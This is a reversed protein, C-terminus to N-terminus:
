QMFAMDASQFSKFVLSRRGHRLTSEILKILEVRKARCPEETRPLEALSRSHWFLPSVSLHLFSVGSLFSPLFTLYESLYRTYYLYNAILNSAMALLFLTSLFPLFTMAIAITTLRSVHLFPRNAPRAATPVGSFPPAWPASFSPPPATPDSPRLSPDSHFSETAVALNTCMSIRSITGNRSWSHLDSSRDQCGSLFGSLALCFYYCSVILFLHMAELLLHRVLLLLFSNSVLTGKQTSQSTAASNM